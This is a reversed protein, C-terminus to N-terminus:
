SPKEWHAGSRLFLNRHPRPQYPLGTPFALAAWAQLDGWPARYDATILGTRSWGGVERPIDPSTWVRPETEVFSPVASPVMPSAISEPLKKDQRAESGDVQSFFSHERGCARM